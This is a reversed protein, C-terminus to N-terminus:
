GLYRKFIDAMALNVGKTMDESLHNLIEHGEASESNALFLEFVEVGLANAIKSMVDPM